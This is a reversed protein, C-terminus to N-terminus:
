RSLRKLARGLATPRGHADLLASWRACDGTCRDMFWAVRDVFGLRRTMAVLRQLHAVARAKTPTAHPARGEWRWAELAGAETIWIPKKWRQHVARLDREIWRVTAPDTWDGYYHLAVADVRLGRREAGAMFADLWRQDPHTQSRTAPNAVAPSVLKLGTAQLRPWLELVAEPSLDAQEALDPENPGLLWRAAGSRRAQTWGAVAQDTVSGAGWAMPVFEVGPKGALASEGSWDYAWRAGVSRLTGAAGQDAYTGSAVGILPRAAHAAPAALLLVLGAVVSLLARM